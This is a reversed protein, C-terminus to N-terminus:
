EAPSTNTYPAPCLVTYCLGTITAMVLLPLLLTAASMGAGGLLGFYVLTFLLMGYALGSYIALGFDTTLRLLQGYLLGFLGGLTAAVAVLVLAGTLLAVADVGVATLVASGLVCAGLETLMGWATGGTLLALLPSLAATFAGAAAGALAGGVIPMGALESTGSVLPREILQQM